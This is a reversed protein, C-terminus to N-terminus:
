DATGLVTKNTSTDNAMLHYQQAFWSLSDIALSDTKHEHVLNLMEKNQKIILTNQEKIINGQKLSTTGIVFTAFIGFATCLCFLATLTNTSPLKM